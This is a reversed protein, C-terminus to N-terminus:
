YKSNADNIRKNQDEAYGLLTKTEKTYDTSSEKILRPIVTPGLLVAIIRQSFANKLVKNYKDMFAYLQTM